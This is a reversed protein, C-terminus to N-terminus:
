TLHKVIASCAHDHYGRRCWHAAYRPRLLAEDEGQALYSLGRLATHRCFWRPLDNRDIPRSSHALLRSPALWGCVWERMMAREAEKQM